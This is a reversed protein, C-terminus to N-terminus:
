QLIELKTKDILNWDQTALFEKALEFPVKGPVVKHKFEYDEICDCYIYANEFDFKLIFDKVKIETYRRSEINELVMMQKEKDRPLHLFLWDYTQLM